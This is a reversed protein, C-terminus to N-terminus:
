TKQYVSMYSIQHVKLLLIQKIMLLILLDQDLLVGVHAGKPPRDLTLPNGVDVIENEARPSNLRLQILMLLYFPRCRLFYECYISLM